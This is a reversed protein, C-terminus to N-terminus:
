NLLHPHNRFHMHQEYEDINGYHKLAEGMETLRYAVMEKKEGVLGETIMFDRLNYFTELIEGNQSPFIYNPSIAQQVLEYLSFDGDPQLGPIIKNLINKEFPTLAISDFIYQPGHEFLNFNAEGGLGTWNM